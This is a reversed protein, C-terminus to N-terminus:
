NNLSSRQLYFVKLLSEQQLKNNPNIRKVNGDEMEVLVAGPHVNPGNKVLQLVLLMVRVGKLKLFLGVQRLYQVNWPTVPVPCTLVTAFAEPIGVEGVDLNPDPTIVSRAAFNVRKGMM